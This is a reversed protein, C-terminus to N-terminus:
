STPDDEVPAPVDPPLPTPAEAAADAERADDPPEDLISRLHLRPGVRRHFLGLGHLVALYLFLALVHGVAVLWWLQEAAFATAALTAALVAVYYPVCTTTYDRATRLISILTAIPHGALFSERTAVRVLVM